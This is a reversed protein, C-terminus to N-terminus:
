RKRNFLYIKRNQDDPTGVINNMYDGVPEMNGRRRIYGEALPMCIGWSGSELCDDYSVIKVVTHNGIVVVAYEFGKAVSLAREANGVYFTLAREANAQADQILAEVPNGEVNLISAPDMAFDLAVSPKEESSGSAETSTSMENSNGDGEEGGCSSLLALMSVAALQYLKMPSPKTRM